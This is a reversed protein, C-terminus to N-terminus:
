SIDDNQNMDMLNRDETMRFDHVETELELGEQSNDEGDNNAENELKLAQRNKKIQEQRKKRSDLM